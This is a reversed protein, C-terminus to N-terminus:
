FAGEVVASGHGAGADFSVHMARLPPSASDLLLWVIATTMLVGGAGIGVTGWIVRRQGSEILRTSEARTLPHMRSHDAFAPDATVQRQGELGSVLSWTGAGVAATGVGLLYWPLGTRSDSVTHLSTSEDMDTPQEHDTPGKRLALFEAQELRQLAANARARGGEESEPAEIFQQYRVIAKRNEGLREYCRAANYLLNADPVRKYAALFLEAAARYEGAEYKSLGLQIESRVADDEVGNATPASGASAQGWATPCSGLLAIAVLLRPGIRERTRPSGLLKLM